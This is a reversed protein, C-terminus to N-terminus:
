HALKLNPASERALSDQSDETGSSESKLNFTHIRELSNEDDSCAGMFFKINSKTRKQLESEM